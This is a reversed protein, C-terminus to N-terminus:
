AFFKQQLFMVAAGLAATDGPAEAAVIKAVPRPKARRNQDYLQIHPIVREALDRPMRGGLVIADVDLIATANSAIISLSDRVRNIWVDIAPWDPDFQGLLESINMAKVGDNVVLQRLLELNPFPYINPPLGGAFEGANGERGRWLEGDLIIGGGVGSSIYLYAFSNAWRGVGVMNEGLAAANGDNDSCVTVGLAESLLSNIDINAWEDLSHPTNFNGPEGTFSGAVAVGAGAIKDDDLQNDNLLQAKAKQMWPILQSQSMSDFCESVETLLEGKFNLLAMSVADSKLSIGLSYQFSAELQLTVSPYRRKGSPVKEGEVLVGQKVLSAVLRSASQQTLGTVTAIQLQTLPGQKFVQGLLVKESSTLSVEVFM